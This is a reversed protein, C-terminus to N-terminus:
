VTAVIRAGYSPCTSYLVRSCVRLQSAVKPIEEPSNVVMHLAGTREGYLGFNKAFSCAVIMELGAEVFLRVSFADEIPDGSVFGQYANDFVTLLKRAKVIELIERWQEKTPDVGTPNHACAHFIVLSGEPINSLDEMFGAYDLRCGSSDVYRYTRAEIGIDELIAPHNPWTVEPYYCARGPMTAKVFDFALRLCGTGSIGQITFVRKEALARSDEGFMLIQSVQNFAPLGDQALYEHDLNQSLIKEEAERVVDLV